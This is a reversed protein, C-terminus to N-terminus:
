AAGGAAWDVWEAEIDAEIAPDRRFAGAKPDFMQRRYDKRARWDAEERKQRLHQVYEVAADRQRDELADRMATVEAAIVVAAVKEPGDGLANWEPTGYIPIPKTARRIMETAWQHRQENAATVV